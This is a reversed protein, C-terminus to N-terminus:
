CGRAKLLKELFMNHVEDPTLGTEHITIWVCRRFARYLDKRVRFSLVDMDGEDPRQSPGQTVNRDPMDTDKLGKGLM